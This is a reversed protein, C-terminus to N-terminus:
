QLIQEISLFDVLIRESIWVVEIETNEGLSQGSSYWSILFVAYDLEIHM